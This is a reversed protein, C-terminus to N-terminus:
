AYFDPAIGSSEEFAGKNSLKWLIKVKCFIETFTCFISNYYSTQGSEGYIDNLASAHKKSWEMLELTFEALSTASHKFM